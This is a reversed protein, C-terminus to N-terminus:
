PVSLAASCSTSSPLGPVPLGILFVHGLAILLML